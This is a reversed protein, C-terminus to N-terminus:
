PEGVGTSPISVACEGTHDRERNCRHFQYFGDAGEICFLQPCQVADREQLLRITNRLAGATLPRM